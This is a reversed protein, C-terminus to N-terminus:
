VEDMSHDRIFHDLMKQQQATLKEFKLGVKKLHLANKTAPTPEEKWAVKIPIKNLYINENSFLIDIVNANVFSEGKDIFKLSCGGSSIDLIQCICISTVGITKKPAFHRHHKRRDVRQATM